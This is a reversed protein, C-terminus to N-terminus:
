DCKEMWAADCRERFAERAMYLGLRRRYEELAEDMASNYIRWAEDRAQATKREVYEYYARKLETLTKVYEAGAREVDDQMM